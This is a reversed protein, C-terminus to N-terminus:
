PSFLPRSTLMRIDAERGQNQVEFGVLLGGSSPSDPEGLNCFLCCFVVVCSNKQSHLCSVKEPNRLIDAKGEKGLMYIRGREPRMCTSNQRFSYLFCTSTASEQIM